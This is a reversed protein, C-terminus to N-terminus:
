ILSYGMAAYNEDKMRSSAYQTSSVFMQTTPLIPRIQESVNKSSNLTRLDAILTPLDEECTALLRDKYEWFLSPTLDQAWNESDDGAGQIYGDEVGQDDTKHQPFQSATCLFVPYWDINSVDSPLPTM